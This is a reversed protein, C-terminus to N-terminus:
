DSIQLLQLLIYLVEHYIADFITFNNIIDQIVYIVMKILLILLENQYYPIYM